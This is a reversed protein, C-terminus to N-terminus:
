RIRINFITSFPIDTDVTELLTWNMEKFLEMWDSYTPIVQGMCAHTLEFGLTFAPFGNINESKYTDCLLFGTANPFVEMLHKFIRKCNEKPWLDHGMFFSFILEVDNFKEDPQILGIDTCIVDIKHDLGAAQINGNAVNVAGANIDFGIGKKIKHHQAMNILRDASGCGLDAVVAPSLQEFVRNFYRNVFKDGYDKGAKAISAGNRQISQVNLDDAHLFQDMNELTYAYGKILWSFYGKTSFIEHFHRGASVTEEVQLLIEQSSLAQVLVQLPYEQVGKETCFDAMHISGNEKIQQLLGIETAAVISSACITANFIESSINDSSWSPPFTGPEIISTNNKM